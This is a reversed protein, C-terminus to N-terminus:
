INIKTQTVKSKGLVTRVESKQDKDRVKGDPFQDSVDSRGDYQKM